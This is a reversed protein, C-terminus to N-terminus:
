QLIQALGGGKEARRCPQPVLPRQPMRGPLAWQLGRHLRHRHAERATLLGAHCRASIPRCTSIVRSSSPAKISASRRRSDWKRASENWSRWSMPAASRSGHSWRRHSAPSFTSSRSCGFSTVRQWNITSSTWRGPKTRDRRQGEIMGCSPESGVGRRRAACNCAWSAISADRRKITSPGAKVGCCSIFVGIATAFASM